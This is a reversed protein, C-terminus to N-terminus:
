QPGSLDRTLDNRLDSISENAITQINLHSERHLDGDLQAAGHSVGLSPCLDQSADFSTLSYAKLLSGLCSNIRSKLGMVQSRERICGSFQKAEAFQFGNNM